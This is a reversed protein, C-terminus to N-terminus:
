EPMGAAALADNLRAMVEPTGFLNKRYITCTLGPAHDLLDNVAGRAEELHGTKSLVAAFIALTM